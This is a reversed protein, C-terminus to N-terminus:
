SAVTFRQKGQDVRLGPFAAPAVSVEVQPDHVAPNFGALDAAEITLQGSAGEAFRVAKRGGGIRERDDPAGALPRARLTFDVDLSFDRFRVAAGTTDTLELTVRYRASSGIRGASVARLGTLLAVRLNAEDVAVIDTREFSMPDSDVPKPWQEPPPEPAGGAILRRWDLQLEAVEALGPTQYVLAAMRRLVIPQGPALGGLAQVLATRLREAAEPPPAAEPIVYVVGSIQVTDITRLRVLVGAARTAEIRERVADPDGGAYRVQVEGLPIREDVSHDLVDVATVGDVDLVAYRLANLTANGARELAFKARQRLQLDNEPDLGGSLPEANVVGDVGRPPTPMVVITRAGVNGASGPELARVPVTVSRPVYRLRVAAPLGGGARPEIRVTREDAGFPQEESVPATPYSNASTPEPDARDWVAIVRDVREPARVLGGALVPLDPETPAREPADAPVSAIIGDAATLFARGGEDTVRTEARIFVTDRPAKTTFFTVAGRAPQAPNREVGLLAVVNDLAPGEAIDIFSRRYAEDMQDYILTLERAVARVLTGIVSGPNFDTLGAPRERYTYEVTFRSNVEPVARGSAPDLAGVFVLRAGEHRFEEGRQFPYFRGRVLGSVRTVAEAEPPLGYSAVGERFIIDIEAPQEVGTRIREELAEIVAQFSRSFPRGPDIM